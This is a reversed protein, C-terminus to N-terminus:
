RDLEECIQGAVQTPWTEAAAEKLLTIEEAALDIEDCADEIRRALKWRRLHDAAPLPGQHGFLSYALVDKYILPAKDPGTLPEGKLTKLEFTLSKKM